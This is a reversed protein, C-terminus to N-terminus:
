TNTLSNLSPSTQIRQLEDMLYKILDDAIVPRQSRIYDTVTVETKDNISM